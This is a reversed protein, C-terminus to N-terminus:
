RWPRPRRQSFRALNEPLEYADPEPAARALTGGYVHGLIADVIM